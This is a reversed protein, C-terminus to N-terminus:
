PLHIRMNSSHCGNCSGVGATATMAVSAPCLSASTHVPFAVTQQTWFNGNNGSIMTIHTNSADIVTVTAGTVPNTNSPDYLTGALTWRPAGTTNGDHCTLCQAGANHHGDPPTAPQACSSAGADPGPLLPSADTELPLPQPEGEPLCAGPLILILVAPWRM